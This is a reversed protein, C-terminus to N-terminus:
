GMPCRIPCNRSCTASGSRCTKPRASTARRREFNRTGPASSFGCTTVLQWSLSVMQVPKPEVRAVVFTGGSGYRSLGAGHAASADDFLDVKGARFLAWKGENGDAILDGRIADFARQQEAIKLM